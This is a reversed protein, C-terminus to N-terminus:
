RCWTHAKIKIHQVQIQCRISNQLSSMSGGSSLRLYGGVCLCMQVCSRGDLSHKVCGDGPGDLVSTHAHTADHCVHAAGMVLSALLTSNVNSGAREHCTNYQTATPGTPVVFTNHVQQWLLQGNNFSKRSTPSTTVPIFVGPSGLAGFELRNDLSAKTSPTLQM